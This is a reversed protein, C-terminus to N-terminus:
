HAPQLSGISSEVAHVQSMWAAQPVVYDLQLRHDSHGTPANKATVLLKFNVKGKPQLLFQTIELGNVQFRGERIAGFRERLRDAYAKADSDENLEMSSVLLVSADEPRLFVALPKAPSESSQASPTTTPQAAGVADAIAAVQEDPLANWGVPPRLSIGFEDFRRADGLLADNVSFRMTEAPASQTPSSEGAGVLSNAEDCGLVGM